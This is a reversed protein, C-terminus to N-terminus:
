KSPQRLRRTSALSRERIAAGQGHRKLEQPFPALFSTNKEDLSHVASLASSRIRSATSMSSDRRRGPRRPTRDIGFKHPSSADENEGRGRRAALPAPHLSSRM